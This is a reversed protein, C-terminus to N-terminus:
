FGPHIKEIPLYPLMRTLKWHENCMLRHAIPTYQKLLWMVSAWSSLSTSLHHFHDIKSLYEQFSVLMPIYAVFLHQVSLWNSYKIHDVDFCCVILGLLSAWHLYIQTPSQVSDFIWKRKLWVFSWYLLWQILLLFSKGSDWESENDGVKSDRREKPQLTRDWDSHHRGPCLSRETSSQCLNNQPTSMQSAPGLGRPLEIMLFKLMM